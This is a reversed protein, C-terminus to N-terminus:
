AVKTPAFIAVYMKLWFHLKKIKKLSMKLFNYM